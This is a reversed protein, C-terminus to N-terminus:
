GPRQDLHAETDPPLTDAPPEQGDGAPAAPTAAVSAASAPPVDGPHAELARAAERALREVHHRMDATVVDGLPAFNRFDDRYTDLGDFVNFKPSSFLQRLARRRLDADVGPTLFASYDSDQGLQALDPLEVAPTAGPAADADPAPAAVAPLSQASDPLVGTRAQQKLRSWREVFSERADDPDGPGPDSM